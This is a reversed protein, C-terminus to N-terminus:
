APTATSAVDSVHIAAGTFSFQLRKAQSLRSSSLSSASFSTPLPYINSLEALGFTGSVVATCELLQGVRQKHVGEKSRNM